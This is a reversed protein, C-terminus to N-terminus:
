RWSLAREDVFNYEIALQDNIDDSFLPRQDSGDANMVWIEWRGNRDTLFAIRSGDPSWAPAVNNWPQTSQDPRIGEWLPTQTLQVRGSGDANLRFINTGDQGRTTVAIFRGDPSFVPSGDGLINTLQQRYDENNVDIALLGNGAASVVRWEQQPDWAPRFAYQGGYMDTYNGSSVDIVRLGWHPDPPITFCLAIPMGKANKKLYFNGANLPPRTGLPVCDKKEDTRGGHQYNLVIQRGDPSWDPGKAKRMEGLVFREGSGDTNAVWLSGSDGQWRTFAVQRGDPSLVPDIGTSIKHLGTGDANIAMIDGGSSTQFVLTGAPPGASTSIQPGAPDTQALPDVSIEPLDDLAGSINNILRLQIWGRAGGATEVLVWNRGPNIGLLSVFDNLNVQGVPDFFIGPGALLPLNNSSVLATMVPQANETFGNTITLSAAPVWGMKGNPRRILLWDGGPNQAMVTVTEDVTATSLPAVD